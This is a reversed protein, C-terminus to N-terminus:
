FDKISKLQKANYKGMSLWRAGPAPFFFFFAFWFCCLFSLWFGGEGNERSGRGERGGGEGEGRGEDQNGVV